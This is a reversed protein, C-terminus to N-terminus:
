NDCGEADLTKTARPTRGYVDPSVEYGHNDLALAQARAKSLAGPCLHRYKVLDLVEPNVDGTADIRVIGVGPAHFKQHHGGEPDLPAWEDIVLVDRYCDVPVCVRQGTKLVKGCDKFDIKPALGQLYAPSSLKPRGLMAIGAKARALGSIWTNPAGTFQGNEYEEPYEGLAWVTGDWDQAFLALEAEGLENGNLDRDLVVVTRVGDIVKTLDTVTTVVTHAVGGVTGRLTFETGPTLPFFRNNVKPRAPFDGSQLHQPSGCGETQTTKASAIGPAALLFPLLLSSLVAARIRHRHFM